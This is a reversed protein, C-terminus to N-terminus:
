RVTHKSIVNNGDVKIAIYHFGGNSNFEEIPFVNNGNVVNIKEQRVIAGNIDSIILMGEGEFEETELVVNFAGNSPNPYSSLLTERYTGVCSSSVLDFTEFTGNFDYQTLRYYNIGPVPYDDAISYEIPTNSNGAAGITGIVVWDEANRSRDLRFYNSNHESATTWTVDVKKNDSCIAQISILEVPLLIPLFQQDSDYMSGAGGPFPGTYQGGISFTGNVTVNSTGGGVTVNGDVDFVGGLSVSISCNNDATVSGTVNVNGTGTINFAANNNVDINGLTASGSVQLSFNNSTIITGNVILNGGGQVIVGDGNAANLNGLVTLTVGSNIILLANNQMYICDYTASTNLYMDPSGPVTLNNGPPCQANGSFSYCVLVILLLKRLM